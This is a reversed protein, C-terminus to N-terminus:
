IGLLLKMNKKISQSPMSSTLSAASTLSASSTLSAASTLSAPGSKVMSVTPMNTTTSFVPVQSFGKESLYMCIDRYLPLVQVNHMNKRLAELFANTFAGYHTNGGSDTIDSSTQNDRCGSFVFINPNSISMNNIMTRNYQTPSVYNFVWPLNTITGSNCSDFLIVCRCKITKVIEFIELDTIVGSKQYDVPVLVDDLVPRLTNINPINDKIQSGHGSYHIWIEGLGSSQNALLKLNNLINSRTPQMTPYNSDDRLMVINSPLYNYADILMGRMNIIDNICGQLQSNTDNFYDIGILLAKKSM